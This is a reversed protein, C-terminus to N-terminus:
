AAEGPMERVRLPEPWGSMGNGKSRDGHEAAWVSGMQKVFVATEAAQCQDVLCEVWEERLPRAGPGSEGGVIVWDLQSGRGSVTAVMEALWMGMDSYEVGLWKSLDLEGLLPEASVFRIAAPTKVLEPIRRDAYEQNEASVGLWVGPLPWLAGFEIRDSLEGANTRDIAWRHAAGAIAARTSMWYGNIHRNEATMYARMRPARKTLVQFQHGYLEHAVAMVGFVEDIFADPVRPHFLDSMSNVFVTRPKKWRLPISLADEHTTVAFGPGSTRPDGDNQYKASGMGKLRGAMTLAYCHDCGPSVRDCGTVPNWTEETWEISSM